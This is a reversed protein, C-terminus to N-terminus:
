AYNKTNLSMEFLLSICICIYRKNNKTKNNPGKFEFVILYVYVFVSKPTLVGQKLFLIFLITIYTYIYEITKTEFGKLEFVITLLVINHVCRQDQHESEETLFVNHM